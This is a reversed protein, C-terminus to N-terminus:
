QVNEPRLQFEGCWHDATVQPFFSFTQFVPGQPGQLFGGHVTPPHANCHRQTEGTGPAVLLSSLRCTSCSEDKQIDFETKEM